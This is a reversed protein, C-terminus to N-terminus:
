ASNNSKRCQILFFYAKMGQVIEIQQCRGEKASYHFIDGLVPFVTYSSSQGNKARRGFLLLGYMNLPRVNKSSGSSRFKQGWNTMTERETLHVGEPAPGPGHKSILRRDGEGGGGWPFNGNSLALLSLWTALNGFALGDRSLLPPPGCKTSVGTLSPM